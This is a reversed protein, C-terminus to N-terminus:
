ILGHEHHNMQQIVPAEPLISHTGQGHCSSDGVDPSIDHHCTAGGQQRSTKQLTKSWSPLQAGALPQEHGAVAQLAAQAKMSVRDM